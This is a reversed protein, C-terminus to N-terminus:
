DLVLSLYPAAGTLVPPEKLWRIMAFPASEGVPERQWLRLHYREKFCRSHLAALVAQVPNEGPILEKIYLDEGSPYCLVYGGPFAFVQGGLFAAERDAYRLAERDWRGFLGSASFTQNRLEEQETLSSPTLKLLSPSFNEVERRSVTSHNVWFGTEYGQRRYFAFLSESAPVLLSADYGERALLENAQALLRTSIGQGRCDPRTAVGYIYCGRLPGAATHLAIPLLFLMAVAEGEREEVLAQGQRYRHTFFLDIYPEPDGFCQRWIEKLQGTQSTQALQIM